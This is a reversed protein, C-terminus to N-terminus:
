RADGGTLEEEIQELSKNKTEPVVIIVFILAIICSICFVGFAGSGGIYDLLDQFTKTVIFTCMWNCAVVLSASPGRIKNPLIEGLMLWPVPGFGVSFGLVYLLLSVLPLWGIESTDFKTEKLYFFVSLVFLTIIMSVASVCLLIKRGAHDILMTAIVTALFNAVGVIMTSLHSDITSGCMDFIMVTYFIIANIGTLQQFVMLAVAIFVPKFYKKQFMEKCVTLAENGDGKLMEKMEDDINANKRRLQALADRAKEPKNRTLYWRPSEPVFALIVIFPICLLACVFALQDWTTFSGVVFCLLLGLKGVLTPMLGLIGRILPHITEGLFVPMALTAVGVALGSLARGALVVWVSNAMGIIIWAVFFPIFTLMGTHKRGFYMIMPGGLISGLLAALPMIGGVWSAEQTSVSFSTVNVNEMSPLAPSTYSLANGCCFACMAVGIAAVV